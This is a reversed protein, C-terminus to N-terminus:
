TVWQDSSSFRFAYMMQDIKQTSGASRVGNRLQLLLMSTLAAASSGAMLPVCTGMGLVGMTHTMKSDFKTEDFARRVIPCMEHLQAQFTTTAQTTMCDTADATENGWSLDLSDFAAATAPSLPLELLPPLARPSPHPAFPPRPPPRTRMRKRCRQSTTTAKKKKNKNTNKKAACPDFGRVRELRAPTIGIAKCFAHQVQVSSPRRSLTSSRVTRLIVRYCRECMGRAAHKNMTKTSLHKQLTTPIHYLTASTALPHVCVFCSRTAMTAMTTPPTPPPNPLSGNEKRWEEGM